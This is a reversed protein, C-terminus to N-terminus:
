LKSNEPTGNRFMRKSFLDLVNLITKLFIKIMVNSIFMSIKRM